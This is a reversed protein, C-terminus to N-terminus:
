QTLELRILVEETIDIYESYGVISCIEKELARAQHINISSLEELDSRLLATLPDFVPAASIRIAFFGGMSQANKIFGIREQTSEFDNALKTTLSQIRQGLKLVSIYLEQYQPRAGEIRKMPAALLTTTRGKYIPELSLKNQPSLHTFLALHPPLPYNVGIVKPKLSTEKKEIFLPTSVMKDLLINHLNELLESSPLIEPKPILKAQNHEILRVFFAMTKLSQSNEDMALQVRKGGPSIRVVNYPVNNLPLTRDYLQLESFNIACDDGAKLDIPNSLAIYLGSRSIDLTVGAAQQGQASLFLPSRFQYRSERRRNQADFYLSIPTNASSRKHCYPMLKNAALRPKETLLYDKATDSDAIEQLMGFHTLNQAIVASQSTLNALNDREYDSLEFVSLRFVKWSEKRAGVHWFLQRIERTSEPMMMSFFREKKGQLHKFAYIVNNSGRLGPKTLQDMREQSFLNSITLQNREDNWYQWIAQNNETMLVLKLENGSFFLPLNCTHKLYNNEYGRSRVRIVKDQNDHRAKHSHSHLFHTIIDDVVPNDDLKIVRLFRISDNELSQDIGVIRYFVSKEIDAIDNSRAIETFFISIVEGLKYDFASPVKIKGGSPSIDVTMGHIKQEHNLHIEIQTAIRLRNEKRKLDYGMVLPEATFDIATSTNILDAGQPKGKQNMVKFSNHTNSLADFVGETYGLFKRVNKHYINFAVDDLWHTIGELEYERCEGQVRGRLDISRYCPSMQRKLEMKVLIKISPPEGDTLQSLLHEFEQTHYVPILREALSIIESQQM